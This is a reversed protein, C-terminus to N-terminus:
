FGETAEHLTCCALFVQWVWLSMPRKEDGMMARCDTQPRSSGPEPVDGSSGTRKGGIGLWPGRSGALLWHTPAQAMCARSGQIWVPNATGSRAPVGGGGEGPVSCGGAISRLPGGLDSCLADLELHVWILDGIKSRNSISHHQVLGLADERLCPQRHLTQLPPQASSLYAARWWPWKWCSVHWYSWFVMYQAHITYLLARLSAVRM